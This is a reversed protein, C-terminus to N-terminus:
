KIKSQYSSIKSVLFIGLALAAPVILAALVIVELTNIGADHEPDRARHWRDKVLCMLYTLEPFLDM